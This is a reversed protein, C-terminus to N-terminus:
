SKSFLPVKNVKFKFRKSSFDMLRSPRDLGAEEEDQCVLDSAAANEQNSLPQSEDKRSSSHMLNSLKNM